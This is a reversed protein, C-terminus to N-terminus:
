AFLFYFVNSNPIFESGNEREPRYAHAAAAVAESGSEAGVNPYNGDDSPLPHGREPRLHTYPKFLSYMSSSFIDFYAGGGEFEVHGEHWEKHM